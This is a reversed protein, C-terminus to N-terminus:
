VVHKIIVIKLIVHESFQLNMVVIRMYMDRAM